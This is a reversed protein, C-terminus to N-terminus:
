EFRIYYFGTYDDIEGNNADEYPDYYGTQIIPREPYEAFVDEIFAAIIECEAESPCLIEEENTWFGPDDNTDYSRPERPLMDLIASLVDKPNM